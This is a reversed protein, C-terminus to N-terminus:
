RAEGARQQRAVILLYEIEKAPVKSYRRRLEDLTAIDLMHPRCQYLWQLLQVKQDKGTVEKSGYNRQQPRYSM